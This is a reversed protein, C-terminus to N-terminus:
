PTPRLFRQVSIAVDVEPMRAIVVSLFEETKPYEKGSIGAVGIKRMIKNLYVIFYASILLTIEHRFPGIMNALFVIQM